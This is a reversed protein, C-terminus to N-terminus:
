PKGRKPQMEPFYVELTELDIDAYSLENLCIFRTGDIVEDVNNHWHGFIWLKPKHISFMEEFATGTRTRYQGGSFSKGRKIFLEESVSLPCDHTVM